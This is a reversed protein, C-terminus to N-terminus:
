TKASEFLFRGQQRISLPMGSLNCCLQIKTEVIHPSGTKFFTFNWINFVGYWVGYTQLFNKTNNFTSKLFIRERRINQSHLFGSLSFEFYQRMIKRFKGAKSEAQNEREQLVFLHSNGFFIFLNYNKVRNKYKSILLVQRAYQM